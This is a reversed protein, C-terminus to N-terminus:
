KRLVLAACLCVLGLLVLGGVSAVVFLLHESTRASPGLDPGFDRPQDQPPRPQNPVRYPCNDPTCDGVPAIWRREDICVQIQDALTEGDGTLNAGSAKFIAKGDNRMVILCPTVVNPVWRRVWPDSAVYDKRKTQAVLSQLRPVSGLNAALRRSEPDSLNRDGHIAITWWVGGDEPLEIVHERIYTGRSEQVFKTQALPSRAAAGDDMSEFFGLGAAALCLVMGVIAFVASKM